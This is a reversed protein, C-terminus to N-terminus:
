TSPATAGAGGALDLMSRLGPPEPPLRTCVLSLPDSKRIWGLGTGCDSADRGTGPADAVGEADGDSVGVANVGVSNALEVAANGLGLAVGESLAVGAALKAEDGVEVSVSAGAGVPAVSVSVGVAWGVRGASVSVGVASGVPGASVASGVVSVSVGVGVVAVAVPAGVAAGVAVAVGAGVGDGREEAAGDDGAVGPGVGLGDGVGAGVGSSSVIAAARREAM